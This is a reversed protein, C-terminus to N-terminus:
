LQPAFLCVRQLVRVCEGCFINSDQGPSCAEQRAQESVGSCYYNTPTTGPELSGNDKPDWVSLSDFPFEVSCGYCVKIPMTFLASEVEENGLTDGFVRIDAVVTMSSRPGQAYLTDKLKAGISAPLVNAFILGFGPTESSIADVSGSGPVSFPPAIESGDLNTLTVEAGRLTVRMTEARLRTKQGRPTMQNGVLLAATYQLNFAVDLQPQGVQVASPDARVTCSPAQVALNGRIYLSANNDACAAACASGAVVTAALM